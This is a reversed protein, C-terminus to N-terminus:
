DAPSDPRAGFLLRGVRVHTAGEEIAIEFDGSMGMSLARCGPLAKMLVDRVERAASFSSRLTAEDQTHPAVMMVGSIIVHSMASLEPLMKAPESRDFGFRGADGTLNLQLYVPMVKHLQGSLSNIRRLLKLSDVSEITDYLQVAQKVKNSQLHGILHVTSESRQPFRPLKTASEQVRSEGFLRLGAAYGTILAEPGFAKTVAVLHVREASRQGRKRASDIRALLAKLQRTDLSGQAGSDSLEAHM